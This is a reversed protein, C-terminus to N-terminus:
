NHNFLSLDESHIGRKRVPQVVCQNAFILVLCRTETLWVAQWTRPKYSCSSLTMGNNGQARQLTATWLLPCCWFLCLCFCLAMALMLLLVSVTRHKQLLQRQLLLVSSICHRKLLWPQPLVTWQVSKEIPRPLQNSHSQVFTRLWPDKWLGHIHVSKDTLYVM